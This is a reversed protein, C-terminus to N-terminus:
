VKGEREAREILDSACDLCINGQSYEGESNDISICIKVQHCGHCTEREVTITGTRSYSADFLVSAKITYEDEDEDCDSMSDDGRGAYHGGWRISLGVGPWLISADAGFASAGSAM